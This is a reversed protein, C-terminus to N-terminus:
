HRGRRYQEILDAYAAEPSDGGGVVGEYEYWFSSCAVDGADWDEPLERSHLPFAVWVGPEYTGSYRTRVITVPWTPGEFSSM